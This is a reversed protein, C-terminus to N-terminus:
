PSTPWNTAVPTCASVAVILTILATDFALPARAREIQCFIKPARSAVSPESSTVRPLPAVSLMLFWSLESRM